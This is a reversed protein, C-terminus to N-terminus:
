NRRDGGDWRSPPKHTLLFFPCGLPHQGGWGGAIDFTRRGTIVAGYGFAERAVAVSRAAPKFRDDPGIRETGARWWDFLPSGGDGLPNDPGDNPGAIYGDLSVTLDVVVLGM